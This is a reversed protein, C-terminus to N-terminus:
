LLNYRSLVDILAKRDTDIDRYLESIAINILDTRTIRVDHDKGIVQITNLLKNHNSGTIQITTRYHPLKVM